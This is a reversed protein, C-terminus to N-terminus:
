SVNILTNMLLESIEFCPLEKMECVFAQLIKLIM